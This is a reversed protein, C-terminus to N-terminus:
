GTNGVAIHWSEADTSGGIIFISGTLGGFLWFGYIRLDQLQSMTWSIYGIVVLLLAYLPGGGLTLWLNTKQKQKTRSHAPIQDGLTVDKGQDQTLLLSPAPNPDLPSYNGFRDIWYLWFLLVRGGALIFTDRPHSVPPLCHQDVDEEQTKMQSIYVVDGHSMETQTNERGPCYDMGVGVQNTFPTTCAHIDSHVRRYWWVHRM